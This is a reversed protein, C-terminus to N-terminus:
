WSGSSGGGSFGGGGGFGGFGGGGGFSGGGFGGGGWGGRHRRGHSAMSMAWLLTLCGNGGGLRGRARGLGSLILFAVALFFFLVEVPPAVQRGPRSPQVEEPVVSPDLSVGFEAAFRDALASVILRAAGDYDQRQFLPIAARQIDGATGDTIFGEVGRGTEIRVHGRGDAATEKPVILVVAGANRERSAVGADSGIGWERGIRLAVEAVDRGRLDPLTVLAIEGGTKAHVEHAIRNLREIGAQTLVGAADVVM